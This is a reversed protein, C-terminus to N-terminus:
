CCNFLIIVKFDNPTVKSMLPMTNYRCIDVSLGVLMIGITFQIFNLSGSKSHCLQPCDQCYVLGTVISAQNWYCEESEICLIENLSQTRNDGYTTACEGAGLLVNDFSDNLSTGSLSSDLCMNGADGSALYQWDVLFLMGVINLLLSVFLVARSSVHLRELILRFFLQLAHDCISMLVCNFLSVIVPM